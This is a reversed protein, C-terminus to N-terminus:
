RMLCDSGESAITGASLEVGSYEGRKRKAKEDIVCQPCMCDVGLWFRLDTREVDVDQTKHPGYSIFIEEGRKIAKDTMVFM